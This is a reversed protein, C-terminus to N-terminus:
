FYQVIKSTPSGFKQFIINASNVYLLCGYNAKEINFTSCVMCHVNIFGM